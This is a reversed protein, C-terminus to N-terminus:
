PRDWVAEYFSETLRYYEGNDGQVVAGLKAAIESAKRVCELLGPKINITGCDEDYYLYNDFDAGKLRYGGEGSPDPYPELESDNEVIRCWEEFTIRDTADAWDPSRTIHLRYGM